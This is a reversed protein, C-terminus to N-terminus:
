TTFGTVQHKVSHFWYSKRQLVVWCAGAIKVLSLRSPSFAGGESHAFLNLGVNAEIVEEANRKRLLYLM